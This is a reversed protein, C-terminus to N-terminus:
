ITRELIMERVKEALEMSLGGAEELWKEPSTIYKLCSVPIRNRNCTLMVAASGADYVDISKLSISSVIEEDVTAVLEDSACILKTLGSKRYDVAEEDPSVGTPVHYKADRYYSCTIVGFKSSLQKDPVNYAFGVNLAKTISCRDILYQTCIAADVSGYEGVVLFIKHPSYEMDWRSVTFGSAGFSASPKGFAQNFALAELNSDAIIGLQM